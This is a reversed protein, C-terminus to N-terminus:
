LYRVLEPLIDAVDGDIRLRALPDGRTEGLNVIVVPIGREGAARVFRYGSFVTLSTGVVLLADGEGLLAYADEVTSRPVSEGFFVVNPKLEGECALCGVVQFQEILESPLESDGDPAMEASHSEFGPNRELLREQLGQREEHSGCALCRVETLTGHLEIVRQSGARQHLRDVNQTILGALTGRQELQALARHAANPQAAAFRPWGVMARAWYRKRTAEEAAFEGWRIPNRARRRTEPGRYDPIGSRTSCGAGVLGVIRRDGLVEIAAQLEARM